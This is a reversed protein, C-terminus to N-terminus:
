YITIYIEELCISFGGIVGLIFFECVKIRKYKTKIWKVFIKNLIEQGSEIQHTNLKTM